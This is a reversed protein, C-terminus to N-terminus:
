SHSGFIEKKFNLCDQPLKQIQSDREPSKAAWANVFRFPIVILDQTTETAERSAVKQSNGELGEAQELNAM